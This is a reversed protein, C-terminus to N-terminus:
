IWLELILRQLFLSFFSVWKECCSHSLKPTNPIPLPWFLFVTMGEADIISWPYSETSRVREHAVLDQSHLQSLPPKLLKEQTSYSLTIHLPFMRSNRKIHSNILIWLINPLRTLGHILFVSNYGMIRLHKEVIFLSYWNTCNVTSIFYFYLVMKSPIASTSSWTCNDSLIDSLFGQSALALPFSRCSLGPLLPNKCHSVLQQGRTHLVLRLLRGQGSIFSQLLHRSAAERWLSSPSLLFSQYQPTLSVPDCPVPEMHSVWGTQKSSFSHFTFNHLFKNDCWLIM